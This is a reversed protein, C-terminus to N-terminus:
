DTARLPWFLMALTQIQIAFDEVEFRGTTQMQFVRSMQGVKQCWSRNAGTKRGSPGLYTRRFTRVLLLTSTGIPCFCQDTRLQLCSRPRSSPHLAAPLSRGTRLCFLTSSSEALICQRAQKDTAFGLVSVTGHLSLPFEAVSRQLACHAASRFAYPPQLCFPRFNSRYSDPIVVRSLSCREHDASPGFFQARSTVSGGYYRLLPAIGASDLSAPLHLRQVFSRLFVAGYIDLPSLETFLLVLVRVKSETWLRNAAGSVPSM